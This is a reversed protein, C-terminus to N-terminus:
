GRGGDLAIDGRSKLGHKRLRTYLQTRSIGLERSAKSKNGEVKRMVRAIAHREMIDLVPADIPPMPARLLSLDDARIVGDECVITARELVNRLERVNGPWDHRLLAALADPMLQTPLHGTAREFRHLFHAALLPIDEPRQRLPPICIDFVNLRYYLDARFQGRVVADRLDRNTAAILRINTRVPRTGGLRVFEREELVRLIKAQAAATM